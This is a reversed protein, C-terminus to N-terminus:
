NTIVVARTDLYTLWATTKRDTFGLMCASARAELLASRKRPETVDLNRSYSKEERDLKGGPAQCLYSLRVETLVLFRLLRDGFSNKLM